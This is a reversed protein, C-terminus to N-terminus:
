RAIKCAKRNGNSDTAVIMYIGSPLSSLSVCTGDGSYGTECKLARGGADYVDVREADAVTVSGSAKDYSIDLDGDSEIGDVGSMKLTFFVASNDDLQVLANNMVTFLGSLYIKDTDGISFDYSGEVKGSEGKELILTPGMPVNAINNAGGGLAEIPFIVTYLPLGFFEGDCTVDCVFTLKTRDYVQYVDADGWHQIFMRETSLDPMYYSNVAVKPESFDVLMTVLGKWEYLMDVAPDVFTLAYNKPASPAQMGSLLEFVTVFEKTVKEGPKLTLTIGAGEMYRNSGSALVPYVSQTLEKQTNNAVTVKVRAASGYYLQSVISADEITLCPAPLNEVAYAGDTKTLGFYNYARTITQVPIWPANEDGVHQICITVKYIGDGLDEPLEVSQTRPFGSYSVMWAGGNKVLKVPNVEKSSIKLYRTEGKTEGVPEISVGFNVNMPLLGTNVWGTNDAKISLRSGRMSATMASIQTLNLPESNEEKPQIGIIATQRFDYAGGLGGGTGVSGPNLANFLFYGDSMGGWGWNFHFYGDSSYGDCIFEHGASSSMGEYMIPRGAALENYMLDEWEEATFYERYLYQINPNYGFNEVFARACVMAVAGSTTRGYVMDSSYGCAKMLTSVADAQEETYKGETYVDLMKDWQLPYEGLDMSDSQGTPLTVSVTGTGVAPYQWYNMVQAMATAVCGTPCHVGQIKPAQQNFPTQQNWKTKILPVIPTKEDAERSAYAIGNAAAYEIQRGYEALWWKLQEPMDDADFSGSDAYGLLPAALDDASVLIYGNNDQRGFVYVGANGTPLMSTYVLEYSGGRTPIGGAFGARRLAVDPDLTAGQMGLALSLGAFIFTFKRM